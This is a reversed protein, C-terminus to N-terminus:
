ELGTAIKKMLELTIASPQCLPLRAFDSILGRNTLAAKTPLPNTEVFLGRHLELLKFHIARATNWDGKLAADNFQKMMKPAVNATVSITGVGGCAMIPLNLADEGSLLTFGAPARRIIEMAQELNGSAEKVAVINSVEALELTTDALMNCGTRGPVNYLVVPLSTSAAVAKFHRKLGEQPPKNYYPTVVLVSEAGLDAAKETLECTARTDNSGTGFMIAIKGAVKATVAKMLAKKEDFNLTASEGTTGCIVLGDTKATLHMDLLRELAAFDIQDNKTFPTILAAWSGKISNM